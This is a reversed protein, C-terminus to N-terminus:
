RCKKLHVTQKEFYLKWDKGFYKSLSHKVEGGGGGGMFELLMEWQFNQFGLSESEFQFFYIM